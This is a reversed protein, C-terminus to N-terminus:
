ESLEESEYPFIIVKQDTHFLILDPFLLVYRSYEQTFSFITSFISLILLPFLIFFPFISLLFQQVKLGTTISKLGNDNGM